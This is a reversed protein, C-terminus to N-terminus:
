DFTDLPSSGEHGLSNADQGAAAVARPQVGRDPRHGEPRMVAVAPRGDAEAVAGEAQQLPRDLGLREIGLPEIGRQGALAARKEAAGVAAIGEGERHRVAAQLVARALHEIPQRQEPEFPQDADAAVAAELDQAPEQRRTAQREDADGLRDVVVDGM